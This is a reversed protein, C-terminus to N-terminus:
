RIVAISAARLGRTQYHFGWKLPNAGCCDAIAVAPIVDQGDFSWDASEGRNLNEQTYGCGNHLFVEVTHKSSVTCADFFTIRHTAAPTKM